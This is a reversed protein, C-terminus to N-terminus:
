SCIERIQGIVSIYLMTSPLPSRTAFIYQRGGRLDRVQPAQCRDAQARAAPGALSPGVQGAERSALLMNERRDLVDQPGNRLVQPGAASRANRRLSSRARKKRPAM